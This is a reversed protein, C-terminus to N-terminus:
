CRQNYGSNIKEDRMWVALQDASQVYDSEPIYLTAGLSLPTFIDRLLPDHALGSLMSFRDNENLGFTHTHWDLFHALPRHTGLIARPQGTTGSTCAVYAPADAELPIGPLTNSYDGLFNRKAAISRTPLELYCGGDLGDTFKTLEAPLEGAGEIHLFGQPAAIQLSNVLRRAPYAPDLIVFAAGAKLTGLIAWVLSASRHGYIAVVDRQHIGQDLLYNALQNSRAELEVYTWREQPDVVALNTGVREAQRAFRDPVSGTWQCALEMKPDPLLAQAVSTVLSYHDIVEDPDESIQTLLMQFQRLMEAMRDPTFLDVNYLLNLQISKGNDSAYLTMDFKANADSLSYPEVKLGPLALRELSLNVMNFFVQFLPPRSLNRVPQLEEVLKEFPLDQHAYASLASERMQRLLDRFSPKGSLDSRMVLTNVFFGILGEIRAQNRNAIPTGVVIIEQGSFRYLLVQFAALLIMFLTTGEQQNLSKLRTSLTRSLELSQYTGQYTQVAPRPHDTPLELVPLQGGLRQKWYALQEELAEGQLWDRQWVAFDAYQIPLPELPSPKGSLRASYLSQLERILVGMSWGDSVIHHMTMFLIHEEQGLHLLKARILPGRELHFLQRTEKLLIQQVKTEREIKPLTSLDIVPLNIDIFPPIVQVPQEALTMFHTRLAEHRDVITKLSWELAGADLRGHLRYAFPMNYAISGPELQDLIWLRQQAYSTPSVKGHEDLFAVIEAKHEILEARLVDTLADKPARFRLEGNEVWLQIGNRILQSLFENADKM